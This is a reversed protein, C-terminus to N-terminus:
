NGSATERDEARTHRRAALLAAQRPRGLRASRTRDLRRRGHPLADRLRERLEDRRPGDLSAAYTPAPGQGGLFPSWYDDFDRFRTTTDIARVQVDVIGADVLLASLGQPSCMPFRRAEDLTAADPDLAVAADWFARMMQMGQAYDWVYAGVVAQPRAVRIMENLAQRPEAVFNLMLGSVVADFSSADFPLARADAVTFRVRPDTCHARAYTAFAESADIGVVRRPACQELIAQSLAGTGCGLDLWDLGAPRGLWALFPAAVRRSWRGVYPEYRDGASWDELGKM